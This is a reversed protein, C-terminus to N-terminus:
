IKRFLSKILEALAVRGHWLLTFYAFSILWWFITVGKYTIEKSFLEELYTHVYSGHYNIFFVDDFSHNVAWKDGFRIIDYGGQLFYFYYVVLGIVIIGLRLYKDVKM